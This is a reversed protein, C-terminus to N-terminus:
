RLLHGNLLETLEQRQRETRKDTLGELVKKVLERSEEAAEPLSIRFSEYYKKKLLLRVIGECGCHYGKKPVYCLHDLLIRMGDPKQSAAACILAEDLYEMATMTGSPSEVECDDDFLAFIEKLFSLDKMGWIKSMALIYIQYEESFNKMEEHYDKLAERSFVSHLFSIQEGFSQDAFERVKPSRYWKKAENAETVTFCGCREGSFIRKDRSQFMDKGIYTPAINKIRVCNRRVEGTIKHFLLGSFETELKRAIHVYYECTLDEHKRMGQLLVGNGNETYNMCYRDIDNRDKLTQRYIKMVETRPVILYFPEIGHAANCDDAIEDISEFEMKPMENKGTEKDARTACYKIDFELEVARFINCLDERSAFFYITDIM